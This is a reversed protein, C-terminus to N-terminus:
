KPTGTRVFCIFAIHFSIVTCTFFACLCFFTLCVMGGEGRAGMPVFQPTWCTM